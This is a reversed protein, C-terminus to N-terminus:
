YTIVIFDEVKILAARLVALTVVATGEMAVRCLLAVVRTSTTVAHTLWPM